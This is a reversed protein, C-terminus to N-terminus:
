PILRALWMGAFAAAICICVSSIINLMARNWLNAHILNLTELSFTSFTTFGGLLGVVVFLRLLDSSHYKEMLVIYLFGILLSGLTNVSLTGLPLGDPVRISVQVSLQVMSALPQLEVGESGSVLVAIRM